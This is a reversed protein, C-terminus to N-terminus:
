LVFLPTFCYIIDAIYDHLTNKRQLQSYCEFASKIKQNHYLKYISICMLIFTIIWIINSWESLSIDYIPAVFKHTFTDERYELGRLHAEFISLSCINSNTYWHVFLCVCSTIHLILLSPINLFPAFVIFIVVICHFIFILDALLLNFSNSM